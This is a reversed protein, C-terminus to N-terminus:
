LWDVDALSQKMATVHDPRREDKWRPMGGRDVYAILQVWGPRNFAYEGIMFSTRGADTIASIVEPTGFRRVMAVVETRTLTPAPNQKFLHQSSPFPRARYTAGIFGDLDEGAIAGHLNGADAPDAIRWGDFHHTTVTAARGSIATVAKCFDEAFFFLQDLLLMDTEINFFGFDLKGHTISNFALPM